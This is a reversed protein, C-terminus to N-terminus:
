GKKWEEGSDDDEWIREKLKKIEEAQAHQISGFEECFMDALKSKRILKSNEIDQHLKEAEQGTLLIGVMATVIEHGATKSGFPRSENGDKYIIFGIKGSGYTHFSASRKAM